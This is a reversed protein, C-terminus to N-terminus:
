APLNRNSKPREFMVQEEPVVVPGIQSDFMTFVRTHDVIGEPSVEVVYHCTFAGHQSTDFVQRNTGDSSEHVPIKPDFVGEVNVEQKEAVPPAM